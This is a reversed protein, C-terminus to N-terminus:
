EVSLGYKEVVYEILDQGEVVWRPMKKSGLNVAPLSGDNIVRYVKYDVSEFKTNLIVEFAVVQVVSYMEKPEVSELRKRIKEKFNM